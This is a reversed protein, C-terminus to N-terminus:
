TIKFYRDHGCIVHRCHAVHSHVALPGAFRKTSIKLQPDSM